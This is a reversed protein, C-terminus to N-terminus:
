IVSSIKTTKIFIDSSVPCSLELSNVYMYKYTQIFVISDVSSNKPLQTSELCFHM